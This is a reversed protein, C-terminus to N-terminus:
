NSIQNKMLGRAFALLRSLNRLNLQAMIAKIEKLTGACGIDQQDNSIKNIAMVNIGERNM